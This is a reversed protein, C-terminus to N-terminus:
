QLGGADPYGRSVSILPKSILDTRPVDSLVMISPMLLGPVGGRVADGSSGPRFIAVAVRALKKSSREPGSPWM